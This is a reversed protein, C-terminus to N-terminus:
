KSPKKVIYMYIAMYLYKLKKKKKNDCTNLNVEYMYRSLIFEDPLNCTFSAM